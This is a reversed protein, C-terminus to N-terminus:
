NIRQKKTIQKLKIFIKGPDPHFSSEQLLFILGAIFVSLFFLAWSSFADKEAHLFEFVFLGLM